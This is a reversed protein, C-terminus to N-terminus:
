QKSTWTREWWYFFYFPGFHSDVTARFTDFHMEEPIELGYNQLMFDCYETFDENHSLFQTSPYLLDLATNITQSREPIEAASVIKWGNNSLIEVIDAFIFEQRINDSKISTLADRFESTNHFVYLGVDRKMGTKCQNPNLRSQIIRKIQGDKEEIHGSLHISYSTLLGFTNKDRVKDKLQRISKPSILPMDTYTLIILADDYGLSKLTELCIALRFALGLTKEYELYEVSNGLARRILNSRFGVAAYFTTSNNMGMKINDLVVNFLLEQGFPLVAKPITSNMRTSRGGALILGVIENSKENSKKSSRGSNELFDQWDATQEITKPSYRIPQLTHLAIIDKILNKQTRTACFIAHEPLEELVQSSFLKPSALKNINGLSRLFCLDSAAIRYAEALVDSFFQNPEKSSLQKIERAVEFFEARQDEDDFLNKAITFLYYQEGAIQLRLGNEIFKMLPKSNSILHTEIKADLAYKQVAKQIKIDSGKLNDFVLGQRAEYIIEAFTDDRTTWSIDELHKETLAVIDESSMGKLNLVKGLTTQIPSYEFWIVLERMGDFLTASSHCVNRQGNVVSNKPDLPILGESANKRISGKACAKPNSKGGVLKERIESWPLHSCVHIAITRSNPNTFQEIYGPVFGNLVIRVKPEDIENFVIPFVTKQYAVKNLGNWKQNWFIGEARGKEWCENIKNADVNYPPGTLQLAPIILDDSYTIGYEETFEQNDYIIRIAKYDEENLQIEGNALKTTSVYQKEFLMRHKILQGNFLRLQRIECKECIRRFLEHLCRTYFTGGPKILILGESQISTTFQLYKKYNSTEDDSILNSGFKKRDNAEIIIEAFSGVKNPSEYNIFDPKSILINNIAEDVNKFLLERQNENRLEQKSVKLRLMHDILSEVPAEDVRIIIMGKSTSICNAIIAGLEQKCWNSNNYNDSIVIIYIESAALGKSIELPISKSISISDIDYWVQHGKSKLYKNLPKVLFEKDLSSHSM